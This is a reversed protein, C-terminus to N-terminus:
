MGKSASPQAAPQGTAPAAPPPPYMAEVQIVLDVDDSLLLSGNDLTRNWNIGFDQRNVTAHAEFGARQGNQGVMVGLLEVHLTVPKTVGRMMLDGTLDAHTADVSKVATSKFTIKPNNAVDFFDASRLHNDRKENSTDISNADIDASVQMSALNKPDFTVQGTFNDFKGPVHSVIHRVQFGVYCHAKDLVFTQPGSPAPAAATKAPQAAPKAAPAEAAWASQSLVVGLTLTAAWARTARIM